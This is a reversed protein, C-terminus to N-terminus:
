PGVGGTGRPRRWFRRRTAARPWRMQRLTGGATTQVKLLGGAAHCREAKVVGQAGGDGFIEATEIQPAADLGAAELAAVTRDLAPTFAVVHDIATIGNAHAPPEDPPPQDSGQMKGWKIQTANEEDGIM